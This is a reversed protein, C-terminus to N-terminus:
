RKAVASGENSVFCKACVTVPMAPKGICWGSQESGGAMDHGTRQGLRGGMGLLIAINLIM